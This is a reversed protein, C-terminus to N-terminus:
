SDTLKKLLNQFWECKEKRGEGGRYITKAMGKDLETCKQRLSTAKSM